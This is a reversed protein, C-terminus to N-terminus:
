NECSENREYERVDDSAVSKFKRYFWILSWASLFLGIAAVLAPTLATLMSTAIGPYDINPIDVQVPMPTQAQAFTTVSVVAAVILATASTKFSQFKSVVCQSVNKLWM